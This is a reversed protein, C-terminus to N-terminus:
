LPVKPASPRRKRRCLQRYPINHPAHQVDDALLRLLHVGAAAAKAQINKAVPESVHAARRQGAAQQAQGDVQRNVASCSASRTSSMHQGLPPLSLVELVLAAGRARQLLALLVQRRLRRRGHRLGLLHGGPQKAAREARGRRARQRQVVQEVQLGDRLVSALGGAGRGRRRAAVAAGTRLFLLAAARAQPAGCPLNRRRGPRALAGGIAAHRAAAAAPPFAAAPVGAPRRSAGTRWGAHQKEQM